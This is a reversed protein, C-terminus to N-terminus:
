DDVIEADIIDDPSLANLEKSSLVQAHIPTSGTTGSPGPASPPQQRVRSGSFTTRYTNPPTKKNSRSTGNSPHGAGSTDATGQGREERKQQLKDVNVKFGEGATYQTDIIGQKQLEEYLDEADETDYGGAECAHIFSEQSMRPFPINKDDARRYLGSIYNLAFSELDVFAEEEEEKEQEYGPGRGLSDDRHLTHPQRPPRPARQQRLGVADPDYAVPYLDYVEDVSTQLESSNATLVVASALREYQPYPLEAAENSMPAPDPQEGRNLIPIRLFGAHELKNVIRYMEQLPINLSNAANSINMSNRNLLEAAQRRSEQYIEQTETGNGSKQVRLRHENDLRDITSNVTRARAQALHLAVARIAEPSDGFKQTVVYGTRHRQGLIGRTRMETVVQAIDDISADPLREQLAHPDLSHQGLTHMVAINWMKEDDSIQEEPVDVPTLAEDIARPNMNPTPPTIPTPRPHSKTARKQQHRYRWLGVLSLGEPHVTYDLRASQDALLEDRNIVYAELQPQDPSLDNPNLHNPSAM